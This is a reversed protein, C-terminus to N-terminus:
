SGPRGSTKVMESTAANLQDVSKCRSLPLLCKLSFTLIRERDASTIDPSVDFAVYNPNGTTRRMITSKQFTGLQRKLLSQDVNVSCCGEHLLGISRSVMHGDSFNASVGLLTHSGWGGAILFRIITQPKGDITIERQNRYRRYADTQTEYDSQSSTGFSLSKTIEVLAEAAMQRRVNVVVFSIILTLVIASVSAFTIARGKDMREMNM